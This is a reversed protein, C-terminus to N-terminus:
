AKNNNLWKDLAAIVIDQMTDPTNGNNKNNVAAMRILGVLDSPCRVSLMVTTTSSQGSENNDVVDNIEDDSYIVVKKIGM